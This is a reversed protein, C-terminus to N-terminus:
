LILWYITYPILKHNLLIENNLLENNSNNNNLNLNTIGNKMYNNIYLQINNNNYFQSILLFRKYYHKIAHFTIWWIPSILIFNGIENFNWRKFLGCQWYKTQVFSYVTNFWYHCYNRNTYLQKNM